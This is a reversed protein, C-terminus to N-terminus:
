RKEKMVRSDGPSNKNWARDAVHVKVGKPKKLFLEALHKPNDDYVDLVESHFDRIMDSKSDHLGAILIIDPAQINWCEFQEYVSKVPQKMWGRATLVINKHGNHLSEFYKEMISESPMIREAMEGSEEFLNLCQLANFESNPFHYLLDYEQQEQLARRPTKVVRDFMFENFGQSFHGLTDDLDFVNYTQM